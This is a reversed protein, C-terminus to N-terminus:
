RGDEEGFGVADFTLQLCWVGVLSPWHLKIKTGSDTHHDLKLNICMHVYVICLACLCVCVYM